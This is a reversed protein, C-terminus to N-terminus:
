TKQCMEALVRMNGSINNDSVEKKIDHEKTLM